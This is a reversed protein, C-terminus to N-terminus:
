AAARIATEVEDALEDIRGPQPAGPSWALAAADAALRDEGQGRLERALRELAKRQEVPGGSARAQRILVLARVLPPAERRRARLRRLAARRAREVVPRVQNAMLAGGALLALAAAGLLLAALLDPDLRYSAAPLPRVAAKWRPRPREREADSLRSAVEVTPWEVALAETRGASTRYTVRADGFAFTRRAEEPLCEETLCVLRYVFRVRASGGSDSESRETELIRYPEFDAEVRVSERDAAERNVLVDLRATLRDGVLLSQPSLSRSLTVATRGELPNPEERLWGRGVLVVFAVAGLAIAVALAAAKVM